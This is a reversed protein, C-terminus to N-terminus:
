RKPMTDINDGDRHEQVRRNIIRNGLVMGAVGIGLAALSGGFGPLFTNALLSLGGAIAGLSDGPFGQSLAEFMNNVPGRALPRMADVQQVLSGWGATELKQRFGADLLVTVAQALDPSMAAGTGPIKTTGVSTATQASNLINVVASNSLGLAGLISSLIGVLRTKDGYWIMHSGLKRLYEPTAALRKEPLARTSAQGLQTWTDLDVVGTTPLKNEAQFALVAQRTLTGFIGDMEGVPYNLDALMKQLARVNEGRDGFTLMSERSMGPASPALPPAVTEDRMAALQSRYWDMNASEVGFIEGKGHATVIGGGLGAAHEGVAVRPWKATPSYNGTALGSRNSGSMVEDVAQRSVDGTQGSAMIRQTRPPYYGSKRLTQSISTGEAAARNMVEEIYKVHSDHGMGGVEAYTSAMLDRVVQPDQLESAFRERLRKLHRSMPYGGEESPEFVQENPFRGVLDSYEHELDQPRNWGRSAAERLWAPANASAGQAGWVIQRHDQPTTGFGVHLTRPGMYDVGAGIGNAGYAAAATVFEEIVRRDSPDTFDLSRGSKQLQLDAARGHNHRTSGTSRGSSGPQGGSTVLLIDIDAAEGAGLLVKRLEPAIPRDRIKGKTDEIIVAM